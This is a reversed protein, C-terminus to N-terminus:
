TNGGQLGGVAPADGRRGHGTDMAKPTRFSVYRRARSTQISAMDGDNRALSRAQELSRASGGAESSERLFTTATIADINYAVLLLRGRGSFAYCHAQVRPTRDLTPTDM